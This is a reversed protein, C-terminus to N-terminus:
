CGSTERKLTIDLMPAPSPATSYTYTYTASESTTGDNAYVVAANPNGDSEPCVHNNKSNTSISGFIIKNTKGSVDLLCDFNGDVSSGNATRNCVTSSIPTPTAGSYIEVTVTIDNPNKGTDTPGRGSVAISGTLHTGTPPPSGGTIALTIDDAISQSKDEPDLTITDTLGTNSKEITAKINPTGAAITTVVGRSHTNNDQVPESTVLAQSSDSSGWTALKTVNVEYFPILQLVTDPHSVAQDKITKVMNSDMFDIYIARASMTRDNANSSDNVGAQLAIDHPENTFTTETSITGANSSGDPISSVYDKVFQSIFTQYNALGSSNLLFSSPMVKLKEIRWDQLVRWNGDIRKMRCAELYTEGASSALVLNGSNNLAYHNHDGNSYYIPLRFPDYLVAGTPGDSDHHDRCCDTCLESQQGSQGTSIRSGIIKGDVKEGTVYALHSEGNNTEITQRSPARGATGSSVSGATGLTCECNLTLFEEERVLENGGGPKYTDVTFKTEVFQDNQSVEPLPKSTEKSQGNGVSVPVVDPLLGPNHIRVPKEGSGGPTYGVLTSSADSPNKNIVHTLAVTNNNTDPDNWSVTVTIAKQDVSCPSGCPTLVGANYYYDTSTWTRAYTFATGSSPISNDTVGDPRPNDTGAAIASFDTARLEDLKAQAMSVATARANANSGSQFFTGQLKVVAGIGVAFVLAAVLVEILGVGRQKKSQSNM